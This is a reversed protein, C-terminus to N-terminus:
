KQIPKLQRKAQEARELQDLAQQFAVVRSPTQKFWPSNEAERAAAAYQRKKIFNWTKKHQKYWDVDLQFNVSALPLLFSQDTIAADLMQQKAASLARDADVRWLAEKRAPIIRDGEKLHDAPTVLHGVGVTLKGRSDKYVVDRDGEFRVVHNEFAGREQRERVVRAREAAMAAEAKALRRIAAPHSPSPEKPKAQMGAAGQSSEGSGHGFYRGQGSFTFRGDDPDHWPNFKLELPLPQRGTRMWLRFASERAQM